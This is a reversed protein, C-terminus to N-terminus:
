GITKAGKRVPIGAARKEANLKTRGKGRCEVSCFRTKSYKSTYFKAGCVECVREINDAGSARRAASKCANSCYRHVGFPKAMFHKGCNECVFERPEINEATRKGQESHWAIGEPSGHWIRAAERAKAINERFFEKREEDAAHLARHAKATMLCLNEISNNSRDRDLHHVEFGEPILGAECEWVYRHMRVRLTSNLYYGTEEDRCFYVGNYEQFKPQKM